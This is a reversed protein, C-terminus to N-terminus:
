SHFAMLITFVIKFICTNRLILLFPTFKHPACLNSLVAIRKSRITAPLTVHIKRKHHNM